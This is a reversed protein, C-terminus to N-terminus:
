RGFARSAEGARGVDRCHSKSHRYAGAQACRETRRDKVVDSNAYRHADSNAGGDPM